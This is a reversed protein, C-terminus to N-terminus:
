RTADIWRRLQARIHAPVQETSADRCLSLIQRLEACRGHCRACAAVHRELGACDATALDDELKRSMLDIVDPCTTLAGATQTGGVIGDRLAQRARHLRSKMADLSLGLAQATEAGSLGEVDRLLLIERQEAPLAALGQQVIAGQEHSLAAAEPDPLQSAVARLAQEPGQPRNKAGRHRRACAGRAIALVWGVFSGQGGFQRVRQAMTMLTDQTVDEADAHSGCMRRSFRYVPAAVEEALHELEARDGAQAAAVARQMQAADMSHNETM